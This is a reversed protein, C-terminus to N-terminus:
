HGDRLTPRIPNAPPEIPFALNKLNDCSWPQMQSMGWLVCNEPLSRAQRRCYELFVPIMTYFYKRSAWDRGCVVKDFLGAGTSGAPSLRRVGTQTLDRWTVAIRAIEVALCRCFCLKEARCPNWFIGFRFAEWTSKEAQTGNVALDHAGSRGRKQM